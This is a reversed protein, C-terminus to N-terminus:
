LAEDLPYARRLARFSTAAEFDTPVTDTQVAEGNFSDTYLTIVGSMGPGSFNPWIEPDATFNLNAAGGAAQLYDHSDLLQGAPFTTSETRMWLTGGAGSGGWAPQAGAFGYINYVDESRAGNVSLASAEEFVVSRASVWIAGGGNGGDGPVGTQSIPASGGGGGGGFILLDPEPVSHNGYLGGIAAKQDTTPNSGPENDGVDGCDGEYDDVITDPSLYHGGGGGSCRCEQCSLLNGNSDSGIFLGGGGGGYDNLFWSRRGAGLKDVTKRRGEGQFGTAGTTNPNNPPYAGKGGRYGLGEATITANKRLTLTGAVQLPLVGGYLYVRDDTTLTAGEELTLNNFPVLRTMQASFVGLDPPEEVFSILGSDIEHITGIWWEGVRSTDAEDPSGPVFNETDLLLLVEDGPGWSSPITAEGNRYARQGRSDIGTGFVDM